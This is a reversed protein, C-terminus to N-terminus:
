LIPTPVTLYRGELGHAWLKYILVSTTDGRRARARMNSEAIEKAENVTSVVAVPEYAGSEYGAALIGMGLDTHPKIEIAFGHWEKWAQKQPFGTLRIRAIEQGVVLRRRHISPMELPCRPADRPVEPGNM